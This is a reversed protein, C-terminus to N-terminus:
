GENNESLWEEIAPPPPPPPIIGFSDAWFDRKCSKITYSKIFSFWWKKFGAHDKLIRNNIVSVKQSNADYKFALQFVFLYDSLGWDTGNDIWKNAYITYIYEDGYPNYFINPQSLTYKEHKMVEDELVEILYNLNPIDIFVKQLKEVNSEEILETISEGKELCALVAKKETVGNDTCSFLIILITFILFINKM